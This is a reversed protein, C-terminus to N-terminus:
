ARGRRVDRATRFGVIAVILALVGEVVDLPTPLSAIPSEGVLLGVLL